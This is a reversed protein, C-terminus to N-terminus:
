ILNYITIGLGMFVWCLVGWVSIFFILRDILHQEIYHNVSLHHTIIISCILSGWLVGVFIIGGDM